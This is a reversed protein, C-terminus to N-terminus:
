SVRWVDGAMTCVAADGNSFFDHGGILMVSGFENHLPVPIRDIAFPANPINKGLRGSLTISKDAYRASPEPLSALNSEVSLSGNKVVPISFFTKGNKEFQFAVQKGRRVHGIYRAGDPIGSEIDKAVIDGGPRIGGGIGWRSPNFEIFDGKWVHTYKKSLTDFACNLNDDLRVAVARTFTENNIRLIGSFVDGHEMIQWRRDRYGNKGYKGWHGNEAGDLDPYRPLLTPLDGQYRKPLFHAAQRRYFNYIRDRNVPHAAFEYGFGERGGLSSDYESAPKSSSQTYLPSLLDFDSVKLQREQWYKIPHTKFPSPKFAGVLQVDPNQAKEDLCWYVANVLLKRTGEAQLDLSAGLTTCFARGKRGGPIQYSKTWALAQMPQNRNKLGKKNAVEPGVPNSDINMGDLVQGRLLIQVDEGPIPEKVGYVDTAGWVEGPKIGRLIQHQASGNEIVGRTSESGHLGHHSFFWSGLIAGGFGENWGPNKPDNYKWGYHKWRSDQSPKFGHNATRLGIVPRGSKLYADIEKMQDDPLDRFRTAIIMCDATRLAKLGPINTLIQPNIIGPKEPDQAYLVTCKFGQRLALIKGLQSLAEESRYEEDGSILVIHRGYGEAQYGNYTQWRKPSDPAGDLPFALSSILITYLFLFYTKM